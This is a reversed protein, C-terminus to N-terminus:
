SSSRQFPHVTVQWDKELSEEVSQKHYLVRTKESPPPFLELISGVGTLFHYNITKM